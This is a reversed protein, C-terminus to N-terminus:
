QRLRKEPVPIVASINQSGAFVHAGKFLLINEGVHRVSVGGVVDDYRHRPINRNFLRLLKNFLIKRIQGCAAARVAGDFDIQLTFIQRFLLVYLLYM